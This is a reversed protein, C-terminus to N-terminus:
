DEEAGDEQEEPKMEERCSSKIIEACNTSILLCYTPITIDGSHKSKRLLIEDYDENKANAQVAWANIIAGRNMERGISSLLVDVIAATKERCVGYIEKTRKDGNLNSLYLSVAERGKNICASTLRKKQDEKLELNYDLLSNATLDDILRKALDEFLDELPNLEVVASFIEYVTSTINRDIEPQVGELASKENQVTM